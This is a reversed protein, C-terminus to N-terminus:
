EDKFAERGQAHQDCLTQIWPGQREVGPAGCVECIKFSRSEAERVLDWFGLVGEDIVAEGQLTTSVYYRLGGFKEKCQYLTYNPDLEALATDLDLVLDYWGGGIFLRPSWGEPIRATIRDLNPETTM